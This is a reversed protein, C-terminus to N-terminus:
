EEGARRDVENKYGRMSLDEHFQAGMLMLTISEMVEYITCNDDFEFSCCRIPSDAHGTLTIKM